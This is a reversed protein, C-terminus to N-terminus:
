SANVLKVLEYTSKIVFWIVSVFMLVIGFLMFWDNEPEAGTVWYVVFGILSFLAGILVGLVYQVFLDRQKRLHERFQASNGPGKSILVIFIGVFPSIYLTILGSLYCVYIVYLIEKEKTTLTESQEVEIDVKM